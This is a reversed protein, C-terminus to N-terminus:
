LLTLLEDFRQISQAGNKLSGDAFAHIALWGHTKAGLVDHHHSDGIHLIENGTAGLKEEAYKFIQPDPKEFGVEVSVLIQDFYRDLKMGSLLPRLREDWNSLIALKYGRARLEELTNEAAQATRWRTPRVFEEWLDDFLADPDVQDHFDIFTRDIVSRWRKRESAPTVEPACRRVDEQWVRLFAAQLDDPDAKLGHDELVEAYIAGVSPDPFLLTGGADITIWKVKSYPM